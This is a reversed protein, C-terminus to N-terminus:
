IDEVSIESIQEKSEDHALLIKQICNLEWIEETDGTQVLIHSGDHSKLRAIMKPHLNDKFTIEILKGVFIQLDRETKLERGIGPSWVELNYEENIRPHNKQLAKVVRACQEHGVHAAPDNITIRLTTSTGAKFKKLEVLQLGLEELDSELIKKLCTLDNTM